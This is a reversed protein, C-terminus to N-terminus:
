AQAHKRCIRGQAQRRTPGDRTMAASVLTPWARRCAKAGLLAFDAKKMLTEADTGDGPYVASGVSATVRLDRGEIRHAAAIKACLANAACAADEARAVESLLVVFEDGGLRSVTDSKRVGAVLRSAVSQLVEDGVAHGLRDNIRKFRDLDMFLVALQNGHRCAAAMARDLRDTLLMRNPLGTLVDHQALHSMRLSLARAAGVDHFVIVRTVNGHRDHIPTATDEIASERGDRGILLCNEGVGVSTDRQVALALPDRAPERSDADIIRMVEPLPRGTAEWNSWGTMREAVPNMYTVNGTLDISLVADGISDLMVQAREGAARSAEPAAGASNSNAQVPLRTRPM